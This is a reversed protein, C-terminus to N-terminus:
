FIQRFQVDYGLSWKQFPDLQYFANLFYMRQYKIIITLQHLTASSVINLTNVTRLAIQFAGNPQNCSAELIIGYPSRREYIFLHENLSVVTTATGFVIPPQLHWQMTPTTRNSSSCICLRGEVGEDRCEDYVACVSTREYHVLELSPVDQSNSTVQVVVSFTDEAASAGSKAPLHLDMETVTINQYYSEEVNDIWKGILRECSGFGSGSEKNASVFQEQLINNIEGLAFDALLKVRTDNSIRHTVHGEADACICKQGQLGIGLSGCSRRPDIPHFLGNPHTDYKKDINYSSNGAVPSLTLLTQRLDVIDILRDQNLRLSDMKDKGLKEELDKSAHIFCVPHAMEVKAEPM